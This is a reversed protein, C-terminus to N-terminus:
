DPVSMGGPTYTMYADCCSHSNCTSDESPTTFVTPLTSPLSLSLGVVPNSITVNLNVTSPKGDFMGDSLIIISSSSISYTVRHANVVNASFIPSSLKITVAISFFFEANSSSFPPSTSTIALLSPEEISSM